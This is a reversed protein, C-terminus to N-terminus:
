SVPPNAKSRRDCNANEDIQQEAPKRDVQCAVLNDHTRRDIKKCQSDGAREIPPAETLASLENRDRRDSRGRHDGEHEGGDWGNPQEQKTSLPAKGDPRGPLVWFRRLGGSERNM